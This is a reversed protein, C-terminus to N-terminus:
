ELMELSEVRDRDRIKGNHHVVDRIRTCTMPRGSRRNNGKLHYHLSGWKGTRGETLDIMLGWFAPCFFGAIVIGPLSERWSVPELLYAVSAILAASVMGLLKHWLNNLKKKGCSKRASKLYQVATWGGIFGLMIPVAHIAYPELLLILWAM